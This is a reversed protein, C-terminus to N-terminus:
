SPGSEDHLHLSCAMAHFERGVVEHAHLARSEWTEDAEVYNLSEVVM